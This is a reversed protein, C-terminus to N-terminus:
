GARPQYSKRHEYSSLAAEFIKDIESLFTSKLSDAGKLEEETPNKQLDLIAAEIQDNGILGPDSQANFASAM